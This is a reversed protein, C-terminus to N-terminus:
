MPTCTTAAIRPTHVAWAMNPSGRSCTECLSRSPGARAQDSNTAVNPRNAVIKPTERNLASDTPM